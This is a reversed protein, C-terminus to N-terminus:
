GYELLTNRTSSQLPVVIEMQGDNDIDGMQAQVNWGISGDSYTWITAGTRGNLCRVYGVGAYVIEEGVDSTIDAILGSSEGTGQGSPITATWKRNWADTTTGVNGTTFSFTYPATM